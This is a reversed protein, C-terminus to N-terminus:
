PFHGRKLRMYTWSGLGVIIYVLISDLVFSKMVLDLSLHKFQGKRKRMVIIIHKM